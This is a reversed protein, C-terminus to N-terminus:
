GHHRQWSLFTLAAWLVHGHDFRGTVHQVLLGSLARPDLFGDDRLRASEILDVAWAHLPGRLWAAIPVDFGQKPRDVLGRPLQGYLRNRLLRKGEGSGAMMSPALRWSFEVLRHDLLPARLELGVSMSSRDLKTNIGEPLGLSQDTFRMRDGDDVLQAPVLPWEAVSGAPYRRGAFSVLNRYYDEFDRAQVRGAQRRLAVAWSRAPALRAAAQLSLGLARRGREGAPRLVRWNSVADLYRQYGHFVEDGGDGTLAVTVHRRAARSVLVAPLQAADAFPEDYIGPLENIIELASEPRLVITEHQTGLHSAVQQAHSSEDMAPDLFSVTYTRVQSSSQRQMSEVVLTSDVGGSLLAGVRVDALMRLRVSEDFLRSFERSAADMDFAASSARHSVGEVAVRDLHWYAKFRQRVWPLDRPHGLDAASLSIVSAAPLKFIGPHICRPAPVYGTSLMWDLAAADVSHRWSPHRYIAKLESAFVLDGGVWGFYLPKEGMRDRALVLRRDNRDWLAFAFMGNIRQLAADLGWGEIAALLVETDSHGRWAVKQSADIQRRLERHNYIEGNYCLVYRGSGSVMPQTGSGSTDVIALRRHGFSIGASEDTWAGQGDPGRHELARAMGDVLGSLGSRPSALVGAIGCM